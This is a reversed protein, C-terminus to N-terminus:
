NTEAINYALLLITPGIGYGEIIISGLGYYHTIAKIENGIIRNYVCIQFYFM